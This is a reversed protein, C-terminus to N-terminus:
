GSMLKEFAPTVIYFSPTELSEGTCGFVARTTGSVIAEILGVAAIRSLSM